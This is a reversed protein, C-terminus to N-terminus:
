AAVPVSSAAPVLEAAGHHYASAIWPAWGFFLARAREDQGEHETGTPHDRGWFFLRGGSDITLEIEGNTEHWEVQVSGDGSPVLYPGIVSPWGSLADRIIREAKYLATQSSPVSGPGDWGFPLAALRKSNETFADLWDPAITAQDYGFVPPTATDTATSKTEAFWLQRPLTTPQPACEVIASNPTFWTAAVDFVM